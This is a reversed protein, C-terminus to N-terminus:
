IIQIIKTGVSSNIRVHSKLSVFISANDHKRDNQQLYRAKQDFQLPYKYSNKTTERVLGVDM